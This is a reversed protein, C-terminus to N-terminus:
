TTSMRHQLCETNYVHQLCETNYVHQLCETKYVHQLCETKYVHQLCETNYVHQLCETNYVHLFRGFCTSRKKFLYDFITKDQQNYNFIMKINRKYKRNSQQARECFQSFRNKAEDHRTRVDAQEKTRM